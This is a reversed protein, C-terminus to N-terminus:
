VTPTSTCYCIIVTEYCESSALQVYVVYCLLVGRKREAACGIFLQQATKHLFLYTWVDEM